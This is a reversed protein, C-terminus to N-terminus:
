ADINKKISIKLFICLKNYLNQIYTIIKNGIFKYLPMGGKLASGKSIMRSGFVADNEKNDLEKLSIKKM